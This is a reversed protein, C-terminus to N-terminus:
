KIILKKNIKHNDNTTIEILYLGKAFASTNINIESTQNESNSYIRKGSIDFINVEAITGNNNTVTFFDNAPNPYLQINHSEFSDTELTQVFETNFTNTVIAPNTDFYISATNPIIDGVAYGPNPKIKFQVYGHGDDTNITSPPLNIDNFEFKLLSGNRIANVNHSAGILEFTTEDLQNDLEDIVRIFEAAATGTNEFRITYHLYEDAGFDAWVIREGHSETIDNPDWSAVIAQTLQDTDNSILFDGPVQISAQHNVLQGLSVTPITPILYAVYITRVENPLLNTFDYTFGTPTAVIGSQSISNITLNPDKVYTLTGNTITNFGNNWYFIGAFYYNGPRPPSQPYFYIEAEIFPNTQIIPFYLISTNINSIFDTYVTSCTFYPSYDSNITYSIDYSSTLIPNYIHFVGYNSSASLNTGSDNVQYIFNGNNFPVEGVDKIGNNNSDVFASLIITNACSNNILCNLDSNVSVGDVLWRDGDLVTSPQNYKRVFAIYVSTGAYASLDIFKAEYINFTTNLENETFETLLTYASPNNQQASAPAIKIQYITGQDGSTFSRSYFSLVGNAPITILPTALYDESTNGMGINERNIYAANQGEYILPPSPPTVITSNIKWREGQGVGSDFVAWNGSGLTWNTSPLADPGTTNEFGEYFQASLSNSALALSLLLLLKKM